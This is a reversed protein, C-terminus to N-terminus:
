LNSILELMTAPTGHRASHHKVTTRVKKVLLKCVSATSHFQDVGNIIQASVEWVRGATLLVMLMVIVRLAREAKVLRIFITLSNVSTKRAELSVRKPVSTDQRLCVTEQDPKNLLNTRITVQLYVM